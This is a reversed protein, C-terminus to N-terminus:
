RKSMQQAEQQRIRWEKYESVNKMEQQIEEKNLDCGECNCDFNYRDKLLSQRGDRTETTNIYSVTMEEGEKVNRLTRLDRTNTDVNWFYTANPRCSHNFRSMKICVGNHFFNTTYIAWVEFAKGRTINPITLGNTAHNLSRVRREM